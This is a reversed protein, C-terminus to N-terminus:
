DGMSPTLKMRMTATDDTWIAADARVVVVTDVLRATRIRVGQERALQRATKRVVSADEDSRVRRVSQQQEITEALMAAALREPTM